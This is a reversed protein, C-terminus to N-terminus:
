DIRPTDRRLPNSHLTVFTTGPIYNQVPNLEGAGGFVPGILVMMTYLVRMAYPRAPKKIWYQGIADM